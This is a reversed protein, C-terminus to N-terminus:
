ERNCSTIDGDKVITYIRVRSKPRATNRFSGARGPAVREGVHEGRLRVRRVAHDALFPVVSDIRRRKNRVRQQVDAEERGPETPRLVFLRVVIRELWPVPAGDSSQGPERVAPVDPSSEPVDHAREAVGDLEGSCNKSYKWNTIM